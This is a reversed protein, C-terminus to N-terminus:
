ADACPGPADEAADGVVGGVGSHLEAALAREVARAAESPTQVLADYPVRHMSCERMHRVRVDMGRADISIVAADCHEVCDKNFLRELKDKYKSNLMDITEHPHYCVINDPQTAVYKSPDIWQMTGFGGQFYIDQLACCQQLHGQLIHWNSLLDCALVKNNSRCTYVCVNAHTCATQMAFVVTIV